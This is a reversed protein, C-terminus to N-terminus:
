QVVRASVESVPEEGTLLMAQGSSFLQDKFYAPISAWAGPGLVKDIREALREKQAETFSVPDDPTDSLRIIERGSRDYYAWRTMMAFVGTAKNDKVDFLVTVQPARKNEMGPFVRSFNTGARWTRHDAVLYTRGSSLVIRDKTAESLNPGGFSFYAALCTSITLM